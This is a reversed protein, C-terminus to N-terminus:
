LKFKIFNINVLLCTSFIYSHVSATSGICEGFNNGVMILILDTFM